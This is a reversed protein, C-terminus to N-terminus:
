TEDGQDQNFQSYRETLQKRSMTITKPVLLSTHIKLRDSGDPHLAFLLFKLYIQTIRAFWGEPLDHVSFGLHTAGRYIMSVGYLGKVKSFKPETEIMHLIYPLSKQTQRVIKTALQIRNKSELSM